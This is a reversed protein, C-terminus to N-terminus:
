DSHRGTQRVQLWSDHAVDKYKTSLYASSGVSSPGYPLREACASGTVLGFLWYSDSLASRVARLSSTWKPISWHDTM